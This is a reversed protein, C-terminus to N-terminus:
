PSCKRSFQRSRVAPMQRQASGFVSWLL